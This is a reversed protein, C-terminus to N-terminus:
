KEPQLDMQTHYETTEFNKIRVLHFVKWPLQSKFREQGSHIFAPLGWVFTFGKTGTVDYLSPCNSMRPIVFDTAM